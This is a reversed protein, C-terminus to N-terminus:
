VRYLPCRKERRERPTGLMHLCVAGGGKPFFPVPACFPLFAHPFCPHVANSEHNRATQSLEVGAGKADHLIAVAKPRDWLTRPFPHPCWEPGWRPQLSPLSRLSSKEGEAQPATLGEEGGSPRLLSLLPKLAPMSPSPIASTFFPFSIQSAAILFCSAFAM